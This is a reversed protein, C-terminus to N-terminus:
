SDKIGYLKITGADINGSSMAFKVGDIAATVNCYGAVYVNQTFDAKQAIQTNAMFHKVFTTSAPSFLHMTGSLSQDNDSGLSTNLTQDGTSQGLDISSFYTLAYQSGGAEEDYAYFASTTKTADFNTDGDRFNVTFAVNDTAPHIDIFKFMYTPYTDDINSTFSITASSSATQTSLLVMAAPVSAAETVSQLSRNNYSVISM